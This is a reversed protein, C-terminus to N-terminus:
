AHLDVSQGGGERLGPGHEPSDQLQAAVVDRDGAEVADVELRLRPREEAEPVGGDGEDAVGLFDELISSTRCIWICKLTRVVPHDILVQSVDQHAM